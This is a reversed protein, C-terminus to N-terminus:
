AAEHMDPQARISHPESGIMNLLLAVKRADTSAGYSYPRCQYIAPGHGDITLQVQTPPNGTTVVAAHLGARPIHTADPEYGVILEHRSLRLGAWSVVVGDAKDRRSTRLDTWIVGLIAVAMPAVIIAAAIFAPNVIEGM